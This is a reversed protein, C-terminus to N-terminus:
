TITMVIVGISGAKTKKDLTFSYIATYIVGFIAASSMLFGVACGEGIPFILECSYEYFTPVMPLIVLGLLGMVIILVALRESSLACAIIILMVVSFISLVTLILKFLKHKKLYIGNLVTGIVGMVIVAVTSYSTDTADFHYPDLILSLVNSTGHFVGIILGFSFWIIIYQKHKM